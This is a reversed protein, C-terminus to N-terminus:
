RTAVEGTVGSSKRRRSAAIERWVRLAPVAVVLAYGTAGIVVYIGLAVVQSQIALNSRALFVLLAVAAAGIGPYICATLFPRIPIGFRTKFLRLSVLSGLLTRAVFAVSVAVLGLHSVLIFLCSGTVTLFGTLGFAVHAKDFRVAVPYVLYNLSAPILAFMLIASPLILENWGEGFLIKVIEPSVVMAGIAIPFIIFALLPFAEIIWERVEDPSEQERLSSLMVTQVPALLAQLFSQLLRSALQFAGLLAAGGIVGIILDSVKVNLVGLFRTGVISSLVRWQAFIPAFNWVFGPRWGAMALYAGTTVLASAIRGHAIALFGYGLNLSFAAVIAMALAGFVQVTGIHRFRQDFRLRAQSVAGAAEIPFIVSVLMMAQGIEEEGLVSLSYGIGAVALALCLGILIQFVFASRSFAEHWQRERVLYDPVGGLMFDRSMEVALMAIAVYGFDRADLHRALYAIMALAIIHSVTVGGVNWASAGLFRIQSRM